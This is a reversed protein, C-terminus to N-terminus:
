QHTSFGRKVVPRVREEPINNSTMTVQNTSNKSTITTRNIQNVQPPGVLDKKTKDELKKNHAVVIGNEVFKSKKGSKKVMGEETVHYESNLKNVKKKISEPTPKVPEMGIIKSARSAVHPPM